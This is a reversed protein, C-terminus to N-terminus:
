SWCQTDVPHTFYHRGILTLVHIVTHTQPRFILLTSPCRPVDHIIPSITLV